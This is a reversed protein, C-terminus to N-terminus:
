TLWVLGTLPVLGLPVTPVGNRILSISKPLVGPVVHEVVGGLM